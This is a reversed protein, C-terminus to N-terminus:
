AKNTKNNFIDLDEKRKDNNQKVLLDRHARLRKRREEVTEQGPQSNSLIEETKERHERFMDKMSKEELSAEVM